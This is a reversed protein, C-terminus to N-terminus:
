GLLELVIRPMQNAQALMATSSQMLIQNKTYEAVEKAMDSDRIVSEANTLEEVNIRLQRLNNELANKQFAGLRARATNVENIAVDVLKQTDTAGQVSRLDVDRISRYKSDNEVGRGLVRTNANVLSVSVTQGVNGGVQFILSNQYVAIRGVNEESDEEVTREGTYRIKLGETKTGEIGTLVQGEGTTVEGGIMGAIDGGQKAEMMSRGVESLVGDTSSSVAFTPKSGYNWHQFSLTGDENEIMDIMLGGKEIENRLLGFTQAVTMGPTTTFSVTRGGEAITFEEKNDIMEQDLATTGDVRAKTGQRFVQVDYGEVPSAKTRPSAEIFEIGQGIGVGNAGTSGDLLKKVGFQANFAVRDLSDLANRMELQDAELMNKDNAGENAAHIALQRMKTLINTVESMAAETTQVMTSATEANDVAQNLGAIQARMQESIILGAPSDSSRNIKMGSSLKELSRRLNLGNEVLSRHGNMAAINHNIRLVM